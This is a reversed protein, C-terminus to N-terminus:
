GGSEFAEHQWNSKDARFLEKEYSELMVLIFKAHEKEFKEIEAAERKFHQYCQMPTWGCPLFEYILM